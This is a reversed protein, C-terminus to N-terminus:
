YKPEAGFGVSRANPIVGRRVLEDVVAARESQINAVPRRRSRGVEDATFASWGEPVQRASFTEIAWNLSLALAEDDLPAFAVGPVRVIYDRGDPTHLFWGVRDRLDPVEDVSVGTHGHCGQCNRSYLEAAREFRPITLRDEAASGATAALPAAAAAVALVFAAADSPM